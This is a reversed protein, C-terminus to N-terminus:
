KKNSTRKESKKTRNTYNISELHCKFKIFWNRDWYKLLGISRINETVAFIFGCTIQSVGTAISHSNRKSTPENVDTSVLYLNRHTLLPSARAYNKKNKFENAFSAWFAGWFTAWFNILFSRLFRNFFSMSFNRLISMPLKSESGVNWITDISSDFGTM